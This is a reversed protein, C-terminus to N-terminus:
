ESPVAAAEAQQRFVNWHNEELIELAHLCDEPEKRWELASCLAEIDQNRYDLVMLSMKEYNEERYPM